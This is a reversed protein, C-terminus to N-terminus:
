FGAKECQKRVENNVLGSYAIIIPYNQVEKAFEMLESNSSSKSSIDKVVKFLNKSEDALTEIKRCAEYGNMIPMDLDLLILDIKL